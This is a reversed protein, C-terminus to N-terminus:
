GMGGFVGELVGMGTQTGFQAWGQNKQTRYKDRELDLSRGFQNHQAQMGLLGLQQQTYMNQAQLGQGAMQTGLGAYGAMGAQQEQAAMQGLQQRTDYQAALGAAQAAQAQAAVNGSRGGAALQMQQAVNRDGQAQMMAQAQSPGNGMAADQYMGLAGMQAQQARHVDGAAAAGGQMAGLGQNKINAHVSRSGDGYNDVWNDEYFQQM